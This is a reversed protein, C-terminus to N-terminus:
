ETGSTKQQDPALWRVVRSAALYLGAAWVPLTASWGSILVPINIYYPSFVVLLYALPVSALFAARRNGAFVLAGGVGLPLLVMVLLRFAVGVLYWPDISVLADLTKPSLFGNRAVLQQRRDIRAIEEPQRSFSPYDAVLTFAVNPFLIMLGRRAVMSLYLGPNESVFRIARQTLWENYELGSTNSSDARGTEKQYFRAVAGDDDTVGFPNPFQGVGAWFSHGLTSRVPTSDGRVLRNTASAALIVAVGAVALVLLRGAAPRSLWFSRAGAVESLWLWGAMALPVLLAVSRFENTAMGIATFAAAFSLYTPWSLPGTRQVTFRIFLWTSLILGFTLWVNYDPNAVNWVHPIFVAYAFGAAVATGRGGLSRAIAMVPFLMALDILIQLVQVMLYSTTGFLAKMLLHPYIIGRDSVGWSAGVTKPDFNFHQEFGPGPDTTGFSTVASTFGMRAMWGWYPPLDLVVVNLILYGVRVIVATLFIWRIWSTAQQRMNDLRPVTM